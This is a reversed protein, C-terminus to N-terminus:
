NEKIHDDFSSNQVEKSNGSEKSEKSDFKSSIQSKISDIIIQYDINRKINDNTIKKEREFREYLYNKIDLISMSKIDMVDENTEQKKCEQLEQTYLDLMTVIGSFVTIFVFVVIIYIIIATIFTSYDM